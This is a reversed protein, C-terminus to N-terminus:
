LSVVYRRSMVGLGEWLQWGRVCSGAGGVVGLGEWLRWGRGGGVERLSSASTSNYKTRKFKRKQEAKPTSTPTAGYFPKKEAARSISTDERQM